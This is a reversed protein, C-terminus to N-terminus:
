SAVQGRDLFRGQGRGIELSYINREVGRLWNKKSVAISKKYRIKLGLDAITKLVYGREHIVSKSRTRFKYFRLKAQRLFRAVGAPSYPRLATIPTYTPIYVIIARRTVRALESLASRLSDRDVWHMFRICLAVDFEDPPSELAFIDGESLTVATWDSKVKEAAVTLMSASVDVGTVKFGRSAYLALFRGTGVPIDLVSTGPSFESLLEAIVTNERDWGPTGVRSEDYTQSMSGHYKEKLAYVDM